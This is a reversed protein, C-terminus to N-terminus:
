YADSFLFIRKSFFNITHGIPWSKDLRLNKIILLNILDYNLFSV